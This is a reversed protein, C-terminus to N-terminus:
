YLTLEFDNNENISQSRKLINLSEKILLEYKNKANDIIKFNNNFSTNHCTNQLHYAISSKKKTNLKTLAEFHEKKREWLCRITKGDYKEGCEDCTFEYVIGSRANLTLKDKIIFNRGITIRSRFIINAKIGGCFKSLLNNVKKKLFDSQYGM